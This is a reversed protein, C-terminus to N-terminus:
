KGGLIKDIYPALKEATKEATEESVPTDGSAEININIDQKTSSKLEYDNEVTTDETFYDSKDTEGFIKVRPIKIGFISAIWKFPLILMNILGEVIAKGIDIGVQIWNISFIVDIFTTLVDVVLTPL